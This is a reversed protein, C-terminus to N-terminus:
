EPSEEFEIFDDASLFSYAVYGCDRCNINVEMAEEDHAANFAKIDMSKSCKPCKM